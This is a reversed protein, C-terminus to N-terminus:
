RPLLEEVMQAMQLPPPLAPHHLFRRMSVDYTGHMVPEAVHYGDERLQAINRKTAPKDWMASGMHPFFIVPFTSALIVTSLRDPAAGTAAQSLINATAPLVVLIDHDAVLRSPKDTPWDSPSEGSIVREASLAVTHPPLFTAATHTMLVTYTGGIQERLAALYTPLM